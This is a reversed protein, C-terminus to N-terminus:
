VITVEKKKEKPDPQWNEGGQLSEEFQLKSEVLFAAEFFLLAEDQRRTGELELLAQIQRLKSRENMKMKRQYDTLNM